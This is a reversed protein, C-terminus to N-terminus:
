ISLEAFLEQWPIVTVDGIMRRRPATCACFLRADAREEKFSFLSRVHKQVPNETAKIEIATLKNDASEVVLDVETDNSTRYFM